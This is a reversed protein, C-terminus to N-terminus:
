RSTPTETGVYADFGAKMYDWVGTKWTSVRQQITPSANGSLALAQDIYGELEGMRAPTGLKGWSLHQNTGVVGETQHIQEIRLYFKKLPDGAAGFYRTFFEDMLADCDTTVDFATKMYIYYDLQQGIGCLYVGCVGDKIYRKVETSVAHPIFAPFCHWDGIVAPEMPHHFYNWMYLPRGTQQANAVWEQYGALDNNFVSPVYTYCTQICPAVSINPQLPLNLPKYYYGMYALPAIYKDPHVKGVIKAVENVFNFIYYSDSAKSFLGAGRTDQRSIKLIATCASCNCWAANDYPVFAMHDGMAQIGVPLKKGAYDGDFYAIALQGVANILGPNTYCLQTGSNAAKFSPDSFIGAPPAMTAENITHNASWREGGARLRRHFVALENQNPQNWQRNIIPWTGGFGDVLKFDKSRQITGTTVSLTKTSPSVINLATPGYWRIDCFRELFDYVAYCTGQEDFLGPLEISGPGFGGTVQNYNVVQRASQLTFGSVSRGAEARNASTDQWDRGLLVITSPDIVIRYELPAFDGVHIGLTATANSHGVLIRNGTVTQSDDVVPLEVGTIRKIHYRLELAAFSASPTPTQAIIITANPRGDDVLTVPDATSDTASGEIGFALVMSFAVILRCTPLPTFM